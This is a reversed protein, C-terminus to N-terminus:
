WHHVIHAIVAVTIVMALFAVIGISKDVEGIAHRLDTTAKLIEYEQNQDM